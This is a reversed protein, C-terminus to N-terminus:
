PTTADFFMKPNDLKIKVTSDDSLNGLVEKQHELFVKRGFHYICGLLVPYALNTAIYIMESENEM